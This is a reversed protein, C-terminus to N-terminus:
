PSSVLAHQSGDLAIRVERALQEVSFPKPLFPLDKELVGRGLLDDESYGSMFLVRLNPADAAIREALQRGNMEPMVVDTVLLDFRGEAALSVAEIPTHAVTIDYGRAELMRKVM